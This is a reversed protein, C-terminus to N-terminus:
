KYPKSLQKVISDQNNRLDLFKFIKDSYGAVQYWNDLESIPTSGYAALNFAVKQSNNLYGDSMSRYRKSGFQYEDFKNFADAVGKKIAMPVKRKDGFIKLAYAYADTIQDARQIVRYILGRVNSNTVNNIRLSKAFLIAAAVPFSRMYMESRAYLIANCIFDTQGKKVLSNLCGELRELQQSSSEYFTDQCFFSMSILEFFQQKSNKVDQSNGEYSNVKRRRAKENMKM